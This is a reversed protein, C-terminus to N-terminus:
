QILSNINLVSATSSALHLELDSLGLLVPCQKQRPRTFMRHKYLPTQSSSLFMPSDLLAKLIFVNYFNPQRNVLRPNSMIWPFAGFAAIQLLFPHDRSMVKHLCLSQNPHM